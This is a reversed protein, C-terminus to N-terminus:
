FKQGSAASPTFEDTRYASHYWQLYAYFMTSITTIRTRIYVLLRAVRKAHSESEDYVNVTVNQVRLCICQVCVSVYYYVYIDSGNSYSIIIYTYSLLIYFTYPPIPPIVM